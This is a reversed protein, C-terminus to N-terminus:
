PGRCGRRRCSDAGDAGAVGALDEGGGEAVVEIGEQAVALGVEVADEVADVGVGVVGGGVGVEGAVVGEFGEFAAGGVLGGELLGDAEGNLGADGEEAHDGAEGLVLAEVQEQGGEWVDEIAAGLEDNETDALGAVLFGEAFQGEGVGVLDGGGDAEVVGEGAEDVGAAVDEEHGGAVFGAAEALEDGHAVAADGDDAGGAAQGVGDGIDIGGAVGADAEDEVAVVGDVEEAGDGAGELEIAEGFSPALDDAAAHGAVGGPVDGGGGVLAEVGVGEGGAAGM